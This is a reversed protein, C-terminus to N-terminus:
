LSHKLPTIYHKKANEIPFLLEQIFSLIKPTGCSDANPVFSLHSACCLLAMTIALFLLPRYNDAVIGCYNSIIGCHDGIVRRFFDQSLSWELQLKLYSQQQFVIYLHVPKLAQLRFPM